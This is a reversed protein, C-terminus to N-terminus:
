LLEEELQAEPPIDGEDDEIAQSSPQQAPEGAPTTSAPPPIKQLRTSPPAGPVTPPQQVLQLKAGPVLGITCIQQPDTSWRFLDRHRQLWHMLSSFAASMGIRFVDNSSLQRILRHVSSDQKALATRLLDIIIKENPHGPPLMPPSTDRVEKKIAVREDRASVNPLRREAIEKDRYCFIAFSEDHAVVFARFSGCHEGGIVKRFEAPFRKQVEEALTQLPLSGSRPNYSPDQFLSVVKQALNDSERSRVTAQRLRHLRLQVRRATIPITWNVHIVDCRKEITGVFHTVGDVEIDADWAFQPYDDQCLNPSYVMVRLTQTQSGAPVEARRLEAVESTVMAAGQSLLCRLLINDNIVAVVFSPTVRKGRASPILEGGSGSTSAPPPPAVGSKGQEGTPDPLRPELETGSM